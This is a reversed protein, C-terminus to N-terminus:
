VLDSKKCILGIVAVVLEVFKMAALMKELWERLQDLDPVYPSTPTQKV